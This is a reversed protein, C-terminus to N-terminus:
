NNKTAVWRNPHNTMVSSFLQPSIVVLVFYACQNQKHIASCGPDETAPFLVPLITHCGSTGPHYPNYHWLHPDSFDRTACNAQNLQLNFDGRLRTPRVVVANTLRVPVTIVTHLYQASRSLLPPWINAREFLRTALSAACSFNVTHHPHAEDIKQLLGLDALLWSNATPSNDFRSVVSGILTDIDSTLLVEPNARITHPESRIEIYSLDFPFLPRDFIDAASTAQLRSLFFTRLTPLRRFFPLQKATM